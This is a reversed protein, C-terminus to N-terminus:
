DQLADGQSAPTTPQAIAAQERRYRELLYLSTKATQDANFHPNGHNPNTRWVAAMRTWPSNPFFTKGLIEGRESFSKPDVDIPIIKKPSSVPDETGQILVVPCRVDQYHTNAKIMEAIQGKLKPVYGIGKARAIEKAINFVIDSGAQLMKKFQSWDKLRSKLVNKTVNIPTNLLTDQAFQAVFKVGKLENQKYLGVPDLLVLGQVDINSNENQLISILDAAKIGGESHAVLIVKKLGKEAIFGRIAEAQKYLSDPVDKKTGTTVLLATKGSDEAFRQSLYSLTEARGASWGSLFLVAEDGPIEKNNSPFFEKWSVDIKTGEIEYPKNQFDQKIQEPSVKPVESIPQEM